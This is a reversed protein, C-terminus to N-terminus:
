RYFEADVVRRARRTARLYDDVFQGPDRDPPYGLVRVIATLEKGHPPIQDGPRGRVLTIANRTRMALQWAGELAAADDRALLGHAAAARLADVTRATRLDPGAAAHRLQLLQVTWEVDALGGRGLKTHMTRDAGRPLRENDVRAKIRRIETIEAASLGADPYRVPDVGAVFREGLEADGAIPRARLLAQSEWTASWRQYYAAYSALSRVLPGNRGEPRLGADLEVPPDPSPAVLERQLRDVVAAAQQGAAGEEAGSRPEYVYLVDADSGYGSEEGGLRGMGIVALRMAPPDPLERMAVSLAAAISAEAVATLATGVADITLADLLDACAVRLLEHRRIGRIVGIADRAEPHREAAAVMSATIDTASRPTLETDNGLMRLSEPVRALLDAVFRSSGLLRVLRDAVLGDDRLMRLYWPTDSLAESVTRYARLGSDPDPADAFRGLLMPLLTRQIAARRSVGGTLAAIHHLAGSPDAFGLATLRARAADPALSLSEAPVKAAADLLPRYFLKEHLRRVERKHRGHEARFVGVVDHKADPQMGMSRALRRLGAEDVPLLHTRRLHELQLRHEAQRLFRYAAALTAADDRGVYGGDALAALAALTAGSRLSEDSRGHVLQLLQVAFEVDRLGGPGLKLERDATGPPLASEVRRRMARIDAVFGDREAATWILPALRDVVHAGLRADGAVPRAKLLAQFEWTRAWRRYYGEYSDLTRVLAGNRGEPRLNADVPWAADACIRMTASALDTATRLAPEIPEGDVPEAVFVVDVDSVYNLERGGCKGMAIIALRCRPATDPLRGEAISLAAQLTAAALDALHAAVPVVDIGGTLDRAALLLLAYRYATRLALEPPEAAGDVAGILDRALRAVDPIVADFSESRLRPWAPAQTIVFEGLASSGGLVATLRRRLGSDTRLADLLDAHDPAIEALRLLSILALDPDASTTLDAVISAAAVPVEGGPQHAAELGLAPDRLLRAARDQDAFRRSALVPWPVDRM